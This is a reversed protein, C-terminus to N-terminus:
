RCSSHFVPDRSRLPSSAACSRVSACPCGQLRMQGGPRPLSPWGLPAPPLQDVPDPPPDRGTRGPPVHGGAVVVPGRDVAKNRRQAARPIQAPIRAANCAPRCPRRPRQPSSRSSPSRPSWSRACCRAPTFAM